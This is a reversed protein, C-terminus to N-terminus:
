PSTTVKKKNKSEIITSLIIYSIVGVCIASDAINFAPWRYNIVPIFVDIFDIVYNFRIRDIM